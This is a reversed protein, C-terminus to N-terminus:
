DSDNRETRNGNLWEELEKACTECLDIMTHGNARGLYVQNHTETSTKKNEWIYIPTPKTYYTGCVDCKHALM